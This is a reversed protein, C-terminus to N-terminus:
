SQYYFSITELYFYVLLYFLAVSLLIVSGILKHPCIVNLGGYGQQNANALRNTNLVKWTSVAM